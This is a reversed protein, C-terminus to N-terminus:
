KLEGEALAWTKGYDKIEFRNVCENCDVDYVLLCDGFSYIRAKHIYSFTKGQLNTRKDKIWVEEFLEKFSKGKLLVILSIGLEDEIDELQGLKDVIKEAKSIHSEYWYDTEDEKRKTLRM